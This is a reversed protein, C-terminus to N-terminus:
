ESPLNSGRGHENLAQKIFMRIKSVVDEKGLDVYPKAHTRNSNKTKLHQNWVYWAYAWENRPRVIMVSRRNHDLICSSTRHNIGFVTSEISACLVSYLVPVGTRTAQMNYHTTLVSNCYGPVKGDSELDVSQVIAMCEGNIQYFALCQAPLLYPVGDVDEWQINVFDYWPGESRYSPFARVYSGDRLTVENYVEVQDGTPEVELLKQVVLPNLSGTTNNPVTQRGKRDCAFVMATARVVIFYPQQRTFSDKKITPNQNSHIDQEKDSPNVLALGMKDMLHRDLIRLCTQREFTTSGRQQATRSIKKAETKLLREGVECCAHMVNGLSSFNHGHRRQAHIKTTRSDITCDGRYIMRCFYTLLSRGGYDILEFDRQMAIPLSSSYKCFAHYCLTYELFMILSSINTGLFACTSGDGKQKEKKRHHKPMVSEVPILRHKKLMEGAKQNMSSHVLNLLRQNLKVKNGRNSYIGDITAYEPYSEPYVTKKFIISTHYILQNIQFSDMSEILSIDFGHRYLHTLTHKCEDLTLTHLYQEYYMPYEGENGSKPFSEYKTRQREHGDQFISAIAPIHLALAISFISGVREGMTMLTHRSFGKQLRWRPFTTRASSKANTLLPIMLSEVKETESSVLGDFLTAGINEMMGEEFSHMFDDITADYVGSTWAGFDVDHFASIVPHTTYPRSLLVNFMRRQQRFYKMTRSNPSKAATKDTIRTERDIITEIDAKTRTSYSIFNEILKKPVPRCKATHDDTTLYSCMCSRHIRGAGGANAKRRCCLTDQSLQDGMIIMVPLHARFYSCSGDQKHVRLMPKHKQAEKLGTLIFSLCHHYFQLSEKSDEVSKSSPIFGLHRWFQRNERSERNIAAVTFLLPELSYRQLVDTGTKDLYLILPLMIDTSPNFDAHSPCHFTQQMWTSNWLEDTESLATPSITHLSSGVTDLLDQLMDLFPFSFVESHNVMSSQIAPCHFKQRLLNLLKDRSHAMSYCFGLKQQKKLLSVVQEYTNLPCGADDLLTMLEYSCIEANTFTPRSIINSSPTSNTTPTVDNLFPGIGGVPSLPLMSPHNQIPIPLRRPSAGPVDDPPPFDVPSDDEVDDLSIRQRKSDISSNLIRAASRRRSRRNTGMEKHSYHHIPLSPIHLQQWSM